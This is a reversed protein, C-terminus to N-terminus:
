LSSFTRFRSEFIGAKVIGRNQRRTLSYGGEARWKGFYVQRKQLFVNRQGLLVLM